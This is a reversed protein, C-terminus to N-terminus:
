SKKVEPGALPAHPKLLSLIQPLIFIACVLGIAIGLSMLQGIDYM